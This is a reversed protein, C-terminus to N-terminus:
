ADFDEIAERLEAAFARSVISPKGTTLEISNEWKEVLAWVRYLAKANEVDARSLWPTGGSDWCCGM